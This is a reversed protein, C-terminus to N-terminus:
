DMPMLQNVAILPKGDQLVILPSIAMDYENDQENVKHCYIKDNHMYVKM